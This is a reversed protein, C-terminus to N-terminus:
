TLNGMGFLGKNKKNEDDSNEPESTDPEENSVLSLEMDGAAGMAPAQSGAQPRLRDNAAVLGYVPSRSADVM